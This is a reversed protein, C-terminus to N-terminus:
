WFYSFATININCQFQQTILVQQKTIVSSFEIIVLLITQETKSGRWRLPTFKQLPLWTPCIISYSVILKLFCQCLMRNKEFFFMYFMIIMGHDHYSDHFVHYYHWSWAMFWPSWALFCPRWTTMMAHDHGHKAMIMTHNHCSLVMAAMNKWGPNNQFPMLWIRAFFPM